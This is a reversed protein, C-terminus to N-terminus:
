HVLPSLINLAMCLQSQNQASLVQVIFYIYFSIFVTVTTCNSQYDTDISKRKYRRHGGGCKINGSHLDNEKVSLFPWCCYKYNM